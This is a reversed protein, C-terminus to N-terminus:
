EVLRPTVSRLTQGARIEAINLPRPVLDDIEPFVQQQAYHIWALM